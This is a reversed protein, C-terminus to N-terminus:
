ENDKWVDQLGFWQDGLSDVADLAAFVVRCDDPAGVQQGCNEECELPDDLLQGVAM